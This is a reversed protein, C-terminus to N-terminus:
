LKERLWNFFFFERRYFRDKYLSDALDVLSHFVMGMFIYFFPVWFFGLIAVLIHSEVTHLIHFPGKRRLGRAKEAYEIKKLKKHYHFAHFLSIKKNKILSDIYHDFDILVTSLFILAIYVKNINPAFFWIILTFIAGLLIHYRPLM